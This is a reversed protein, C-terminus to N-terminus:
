VICVGSSIFFKAETLEDIKKELKLILARKKTKIQFTLRSIGEAIAVFVFCNLCYNLFSFDILIFVGKNSIISLREIPSVINKISIINEIDNAKKASNFVIM